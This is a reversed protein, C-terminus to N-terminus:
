RSGRGSRSVSSRAAGSSAPSRTSGRARRVCGPRSSARPTTSRQPPSPARRPSLVRVSSSSRLDGGQRVLIGTLTIQRGVEIVRAVGASVPQGDIRLDVIRDVINVNLPGKPTTGSKTSGVGTSGPASASVGAPGPTTGGSAAPPAIVSTTGDAARLMRTLASGTNGAEDCATVRVQYDGPAMGRVPLEVLGGNAPVAAGAIEHVKQWAGGTGVEAIEVLTLCAGFGGGDSQRWTLIRGDTSVDVGAVIPATRDVVVVPGPVSTLNGAADEAEVLTAHRGETLAALSLPVNTTTTAGPASGLLRYGGTDAGTPDNAGYVRVTAVGSAADDVDPLVLIAEAPASRTLSWAGPDGLTPSTTDIALQGDVTTALSPDHPDAVTVRVRHVGDGIGVPLAPHLSKTGLTTAGFGALRM